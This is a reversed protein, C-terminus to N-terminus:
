LSPAQSIQQKTHGLFEGNTPDDNGFEAVFDRGSLWKKNGQDDYTVRRKRHVIHLLILKFTAQRRGLAVHLVRVDEPM